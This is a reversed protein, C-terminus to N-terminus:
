TTTFHRYWEALHTEYIEVNWVSARMADIYNIFHFSRLKDTEWMAAIIKDMTVDGGAYKELYYPQAYQDSVTDHEQLLENHLDMCWYMWNLIYSIAVHDLNDRWKSLATNYAPALVYTNEWNANEYGSQIDGLCGAQTTWDSM